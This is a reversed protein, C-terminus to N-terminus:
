VFNQYLNLKAKLIKSCVELTDVNVYLQTYINITNLVFILWNGEIENGWM